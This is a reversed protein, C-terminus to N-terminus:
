APVPATGAALKVPEGTRSSQYIALVVDLAKCARPLVRPRPSDLGASGSVLVQNGLGPVFTTGASISVLADNAFRVIAVATDEVNIYDGHLLTSITGSVEVIEM